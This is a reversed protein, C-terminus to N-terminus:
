TSPSAEYLSAWEHSSIVQPKPPPCLNVISILGRGDTDDNTVLYNAHIASCYHRCDFVDNDRTQGPNPNIVALRAVLYSELAWLTPLSTPYPWVSENEPLGLVRQDRKLYRLCMGSVFGPINWSDIGNRFDQLSNGSEALYEVLRRSTEEANVRFDAEFRNRSRQSEEIIGAKILTRLNLGGVYRRPYRTDICAKIEEQILNIPDNLVLPKLKALFEVCQKHQYPYPNGVRCTLEVMTSSSLAIKNAGSHHAKLVKARLTAKQLDTLTQDRWLDFIVNTDLYFTSM